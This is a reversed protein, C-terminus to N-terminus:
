EGNIRVCGDNNGEEHQALKVERSSTGVLDNRSLRESHPSV